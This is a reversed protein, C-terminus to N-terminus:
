QRFEKDKRMEKEILDRLFVSRPVMRKQAVWDLYNLIKPSVFFNFRVDSKEQAKKLVDELKEKLNSEKYEVTLLKDSKISKFLNWPEQSQSLVIVVKGNELAYNTLYGVSLSHISVEFVCIDAERIAKMTKNQHEDLEKLSLNYFDVTNVEKVWKSTLRCGLKQLQDFIKDVVEPFREKIRPSTGFYVKM